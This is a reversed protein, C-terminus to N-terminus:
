CSGMFIMVFVRRMWAWTRLESPFAGIAEILPDREMQVRSRNFRKVTILYILLLSLHLPIPRSGPGPRVFSTRPSYEITTPHILVMNGCWSLIPNRVSASQLM